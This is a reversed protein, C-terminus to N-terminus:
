NYKKEIEKLQPAIEKRIKAPLRDIFLVGNLHDNEHMLERAKYGSVDVSQINGELDMWEIHIAGPREVEAHLAPVSLCGESFIVSEDSSLTIKPNIFVEVDGLVAEDDKQEVIPRIIFIRFPKGVQIAALGVGKNEDMTEIMDNILTRIEDTIEKVKESRTRLLQNGYYVIPLIM